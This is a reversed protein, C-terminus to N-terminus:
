RSLKDLWQQVSNFQNNTNMEAKRVQGFAMQTEVWQHAVIKVDAGEKYFNFRINHMPTTSYSNGLAVTAIFADGGQFQKGCTVSNDSSDLVEIGRSECAGTLKNKVAALSAHHFITEPYGSQTTRIRPLQEACSTLLLLLPLMLVFRNM